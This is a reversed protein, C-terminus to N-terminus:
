SLSWFSPTIYRAGSIVPLVEHEFPQYSSFILISGPDPKIKFGQKNFYIQGGDYDDNYYIISSISRKNIIENHSSASPNDVHRHLFMGPEYKVISGLFTGDRNINVIFKKEIINSVRKNLDLFINLINSDKKEIISLSKQKDYKDIYVFDNQNNEIYTNIYDLEKNTVFNKIYFFM